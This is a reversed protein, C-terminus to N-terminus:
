KLMGWESDLDDELEDLEDQTLGGLHHGTPTVARTGAAEAHTALAALREQWIGALAPVFDADDFADLPWTWTATLRLAGQEGAAVADIGLAHAAPYDDNGVRSVEHHEPAIRWGGLSDASLRGLYNFRVQPQPLAALEPGTRPNLHRLLGHGIGQDPLARLHEAVLHLARGTDATGPDLHVPFSSTFWGVTRSLDAGPLVDERGHGELEVLLSRGGPRGTRRRWDGVALVLATLLAEQTGVRFAAPVTTLLSATTEPNLTVTLSARAPGGGPKGFGPALATNAASLTEKWFGSESERLPNHAEAALAHAWQRFSTGVPALRAEPDAWRAALDDLLIRWSVGDVVLHHLVLLVRAPRGAGTDCWLIRVMEGHHPDLESWATAAHEALARGLATDPVASVDVRRVCRRADVSGREGIRLCWRGNEQALRSRLAAHHDLVAQVASTFREEHWTGPVCLLLSQGVRDLHQAAERLWTMIPTLPATGTADAAPGTAAGAPTQRAAAVSAALAAPTRHRFVDRPNLELGAERAQSVLRISVISDGGLAFFDDDVRVDPVGLVEAFLACFTKERETHPLRGGASVVPGCPAPLAKRDLKGHPTLPLEDLTVVASPLLHEPLRAALHARVASPDVAAPAVYAVLRKDGAPEERVVVAAQATGPCRSLVAEIEGPEIRVGRIKVQDDARGVYELLGERNWRVLDGTRYMREGSAGFPCAVFREASLGPRNLYGRALGRGAIYLEGVVSPPVPRLATDLVYMRLNHIPRGIPVTTTGAGPVCEWATVDVAAETPGYLNHLPADLVDHFRRQLEPPLAEGSCVVRRLATCRAAGPEDLFARLMSPVFHVTTVREATILRALYAPDRHGEPRAVVLTAGTILPWFFEWVSVDFGFPTKHLVRDDAGLGYADQMWLLRNVVAAHSVTVGKPRGTSGSTFIAYAPHQPHPGGPLDAAPGDSTDLRDLLLVPVSNAPVTGSLRTDTLILLPRADELMHGIREAPYQPDVPVYAAGSKLVGLLAAVLGVSRELAVAVYREPGAGRQVLRRALRNATANLEAYTLVQDEFVVAPADPTRAAQEEFLEVLTTDRVERSTDNWETLVRSRESADLVDADTVSREPLAVLRGLLRVLREALTQATARDYLDASYELEGHLGAARGDPGTREWVDFLLDFKATGTGVPERTVTLGPLPAARDLLTQPDDGANWSIMTQFLPHRATSRPPDLVEVLREFPLSQHQYAALARDRVRGILERFSPAGSLDTRLVLTNVFCGILGDLAQDARGAVPTGVPIDDSGSLRSLLAALAAQVVMFVSAGTDRALEAVRQHVEATVTFPVRDGRHTAVLPRPRDAPLALEEPLGALEAKWFAIQRAASSDADEESGLTERQWLTYDAYQVPLEARHPAESARRATYAATVEDLLLPLSWGDSGVHHMLLLLVRQRPGTEFLWTRFPPEATPDFGYRAARALEEGLDAEDTRVVTPETRIPHPDLVTQYTEDGDESLVTRLAEHRTVVDHLAATLAARDLDGELRLALPINYTATPGEFRHLVWLRRQAYSLPVREPRRARVLPAPVPSGALGDVVAALSEVRPAEFLRRVPLEVGLVARVRNILRTALLSHGGLDFFSDDTGVREAGLVERFLACLVQETPTRAARGHGRYDPAPLAKRDLKGNATLPLEDLPVIASPQMYDPLAAALHAGLAAPDVTSPTAYGVLRRDGAQDERVVVAAQVVDARALMAAEIEGLEVRFGRIKVQDDARGLYELEGEDTWRALDGTRYMREGPTGFPCAVFREATLAPRDLYGRALGAGTVYLEGVVGAPSPQLSDDLVLTRLHPIGRGIPSRSGGETVRADLPRLTVHVTTETIGYMNVLRPATDPHREFWGTLRAPDLAEGGFVVLRLALRRRLEPHADDARVLQDFASPTQSLVTVKERVLLRLFEMPSRSTEYPVVVLRGGHLLPGWLEWVSFDFAYSHFLTWVDDPGFGFDPETATFLRVVNAHPVVVGKPRGTSGSTHIVYAPHDPLLGPRVPDDASRGSLDAAALWPGDIVLLPAADEVIRANREAPHHPDLPVYAAGSKVVALLAVVLDATRPLSVAVRQEPGAGHELLLRTLRNARANLERYTLAAAGCTVAVADPTRAAQAEFLEPLTRAVTVRAPPPGTLRAREGETLQGLRGLPAGTRHLFDDLFALFNRQIEAVERDEYLLSNADFDIRLRTLRPQGHFSMVLDDAPGTSLNHVEGTSDGFPLVHRYSMVNVQTSFLRESNGATLDRHLEEIRHRQYRLAEEVAGAVEGMFDAVSRERSITLRLPLVNALMGPIRWLRGTSRGAVPMGIVIDKAGTRRAHFAASAAILIVSWPARVDRAVQVLRDLQAAPLEARSRLVPGGLVRGAPPRGAPSRVEPRGDLVRNWYSRDTTSQESALYAAEDQLLLGLPGSAGGPPPNGAALASYVAATRSVVLGFSFGDLVVHHARMHLYHRRESLRLLTFRFLPGAALDFLEGQREAMWAAAADEPAAEASLDVFALRDEPSVSVTQRPIGEEERITVRLSESEELTTRVAAALLGESLPGQIDVYQAVCYSPSDPALRQAFWVGAQSVLL